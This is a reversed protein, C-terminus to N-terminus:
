IKELLSPSVRWVCADTKVQITKSNIKSVVGKIKGGRKSNFAVEDNVAFAIVKMRELNDFAIKLSNSIQKLTDRDRCSSIFNIVDQKDNIETNDSM